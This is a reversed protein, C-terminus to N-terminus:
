RLHVDVVVPLHDSAHRAIRSHFVHARRVEISGRVFVKDLSGVPLWAPFTRFRSSPRTAHRFGAEGLPDRILRDRWDNTDGVLLTPLDVSEHFLRHRLLHAAQWRREQVTLGLHWHVLHLKGEPTKVVAIQAGRNKKKRLRLSIQHTKGLPWRSLILNGYGGRVYHVNMQFLSDFHLFDALITPQDERQTRRADRTVEQLCVIDPNAEEIVDLVRDLRYRRDRGGIGKHINYTLLRM